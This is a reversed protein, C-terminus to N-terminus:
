VMGGLRDEEERLAALHEECERSEQQSAESAAAEKDEAQRGISTRQQSFTSSRRVAGSTPSGSRSRPTIGIGPLASGPLRRTEQDGPRRWSPPGSPRRSVKERRATKSCISVLRSRTSAGASPTRADHRGPTLCHGSKSKLATRM